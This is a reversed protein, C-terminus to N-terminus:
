VFEKRLRELIKAELRSVQVQSVGLEEAIESQTKDRYYRMIIIRKDREDFTNIIDRLVLKEFYDDGGDGSTLKDALSLGDEDNEAYISVPYKASDMIFVVDQEDVKVAKAIEAVTPEKQNTQRYEEIFLNIERNQAM